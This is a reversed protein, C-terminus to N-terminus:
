DFELILKSSEKKYWKRVNKQDPYIKEVLTWFKKSHNPELIHCVEHAVVYDIMEFDFFVLSLNFSLAVKQPTNKKFFFNTFGGSLHKCSGWKSKYDKIILDYKTNLDLMKLYKKISFDLYVMLLKALFNKIKTNKDKFNAVKSSYLFQGEYLNFNELWFSNFDTNIETYIEIFRDFSSFFNTEFILNRQLFLKDDSELFKFAKGFIYIENKTKLELSTQEENQKKLAQKKVTKLIWDQKLELFEVVRKQSIRYPSRVRVQANKNVLISLTKRLSRYVLIKIGQIEVFFDAQKSNERKLM